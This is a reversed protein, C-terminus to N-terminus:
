TPRAEVVLHVARIEPFAVDVHAVVWVVAGRTREELLEAKQLVMCTRVSDLRRGMCRGLVRGTRRGMRKGL